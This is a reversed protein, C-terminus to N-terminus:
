GGNMGLTGRQRRTLENSCVSCMRAALGVIGIPSLSVPTRWSWVLSAGLSHGAHGADLVADIRGPVRPSSGDLLPTYHRHCGRSAGWSFM